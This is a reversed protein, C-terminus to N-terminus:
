TAHFSEERLTPFVYGLGSIRTVDSTPRATITPYTLSRAACPRRSVLFDLEGDHFM